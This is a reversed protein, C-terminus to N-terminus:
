EDGELIKRLRKVHGTGGVDYLVHELRGHENVVFTNRKRGARLAALPSRASPIGFIKRVGATPDLLMRHGIHHKAVLAKVRKPKDSSVGIIDYGLRSFGDTHREFDKAEKKAVRTHANPYFNLIAKRGKLARSDFVEGHLDVTEFPPVRHGPVLRRALNGMNIGKM